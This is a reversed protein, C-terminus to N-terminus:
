TNLCLNLMVRPVVVTRDKISVPPIVTALFIGMLSRRTEFKVKVSGHIDGSLTIGVLCLTVV